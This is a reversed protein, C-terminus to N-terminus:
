IVGFHRLAKAIGDEDVASTVYRASAKVADDANGMAIGIGAHRLMPIDNGGDGIAMTDELCINFHSIVEDIGKQKNNGTATVDTFAPHWRNIECGKLAPRIENEEVQSVFPTLQYVEKDPCIDEPEMTPIPIDVGLFDHFIAHVTADPKCVAIDKEGVIINPINKEACYRM